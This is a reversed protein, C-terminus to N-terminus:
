SLPTLGAPKEVEAAYRDLKVALDTVPVAVALGKTRLYLDLASLILKLENTDLNLSPQM